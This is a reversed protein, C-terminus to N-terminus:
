LLKYRIMHHIFIFLDVTGRHTQSLEYFARLLRKTHEMLGLCM